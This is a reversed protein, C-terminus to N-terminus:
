VVQRLKVIEAAMALQPQNEDETQAKVARVQGRTYMRQLPM